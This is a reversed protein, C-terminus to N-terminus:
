LDLVVEHLCMAYRSGAPDEPTYNQSSYELWLTRGDRSIFRSPMNVYYAQAGFSKLYQVMRYPGTISDAELFYTDYYGYNNEGDVPRSIAMLYKRLPAVYTMSVSGMQHPWELLPKIDAFAHSWIPAGAGDKGAFFEWAAANNATTPSIAVRGMYIQDGTVWNLPANPDTAGHAVFYAKGDPSNQLDKGFDVAHPAAFKVKAGNKATEGFLSNSWGHPPPTWSGGYDTSTWFGIFPGAVCWLGCPGNLQDLNYGGYYWVGNVILSAAPFAGYYNGPEGVEITGVKSITLAMPDTGQIKAWAFRSGADLGNVTGYTFPSYLNDDSGWTPFWTDAAGYMAHRGTFILEHIATSPSFPSGAPPSNQWHFASDPLQPPGDPPPPGEPAADVVATDPSADATVTVTTDSTNATDPGDVADADGAGSDAANTDSAPPQDGVADNGRKDLSSDIKPLQLATETHTKDAIADLNSSGGGCGGLSLVVLWLSFGSICVRSKM